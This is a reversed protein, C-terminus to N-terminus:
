KHHELVHIKLLTEMRDGLAKIDGRLTDRLDDMRADLHKNTDDLRKSLDAVRGNSYIVAGTSIAISIALTM